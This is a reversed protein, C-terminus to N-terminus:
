DNGAADARTGHVVVVPVEARRSIRAAVSGLMLRDLGARGHTGVYIRRAGRLKAEDLITDGATGVAVVGEVEIPPADAGLLRARRRLRDAIRELRRAAAVRADQEVAAASPVMAAIDTAPPQMFPETVHVLVMRGGNCSNVLDDLAVDAANEAFSSLDHAVIITTGAPTAIDPRTADSM